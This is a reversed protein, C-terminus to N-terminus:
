PDCEGGSIHVSDILHCECHVSYVSFYTCVIIVIVRSVASAECRGRPGIDPTLIAARGVACVAGCCQDSTPKPRRSPPLPRSRRRSRLLGSPLPGRRLGRLLSHVQRREGRYETTAAATSAARRVAAPENGAVCPRLDARNVTRVAGLGDVPENTGQRVLVRYPTALWADQMKNRGRMGHNRVYVHDGVALILPRAQRDHRLKRQDAHQDMQAYAREHAEQLRRHHQPVWGNDAVSEDDVGLLVDVPLRCEQGFLLYHPSYGM